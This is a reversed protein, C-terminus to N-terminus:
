KRSARDAECLELFFAEAEAEKDLTYVGCCHYSKGDAAYSMIRIFGNLKTMTLRPM